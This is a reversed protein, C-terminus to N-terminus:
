VNGERTHRAKRFEDEISKSIGDLKHLADQMDTDLKTIGANMKEADIIQRDNDTLEALTKINKVMKDWSDWGALDRLMKVESSFYCVLRAEFELIQSYLKLRKKKFDEALDQLNKSKVRIETAKEFYIEDIV